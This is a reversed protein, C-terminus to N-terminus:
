DNNNVVKRYIEVFKDTNSFEVDVCGNVNNFQQNYWDESKKVKYVVVFPATHSKAYKIAEQKNNFINDFAYDKNDASSEVLFITKEM